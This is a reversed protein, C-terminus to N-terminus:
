GPPLPPPPSPRAPPRPSRPPPPRGARGERGGGEAARGEEAGSGEGKARAAGWPRRAASAGGGARGGARRSAAEGRRAGVQGARGGATEEAARRRGRPGRAGRALGAAAAARAPVSALKCVGVRPGNGRFCKERGRPKKASRGCGSGPGPAQAPPPRRSPTLSPVRPASCSAPPLPPPGSPRLLTTRLPARTRRPAAAGRGGDQSLAPVRSAGRTRLPGSTNKSFTRQTASGPEQFVEM